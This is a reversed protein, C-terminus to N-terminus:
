TVNIEQKEVQKVSKEKAKTLTPSFDQLMFNYADSSESYLIVDHDCVNLHILRCDRLAM